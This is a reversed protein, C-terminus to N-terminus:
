KKDQSKELVKKIVLTLILFGYTSSTVNMIFQLVLSPDKWTPSMYVTYTMGIFLLILILDWIDIEKTKM